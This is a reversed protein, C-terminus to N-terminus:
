RDSTAADDDVPPPARRRDELERKLSSGEFAKRAADREAELEGGAAGRDSMRCRLTAKRQSYSEHLRRAAEESTLDGGRVRAELDSIEREIASGSVCTWTAKRDTSPTAGESSLLMGPMSIEGQIEFGELAGAAARCHSLDGKNWEKSPHFTWELVIENGSERMRFRHEGVCPEKRALLNVDEFYGDAELEVRGDRVESREHVWASVGEWCVLETVLSQRSLAALESEEAGLLELESLAKTSHRWVHVKGSRDANVSVSVKQEFCGACSISLLAVLGLPFRRTFM